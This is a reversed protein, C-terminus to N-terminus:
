LSSFNGVMLREVENNFENSGSYMVFVDANEREDGLDSLWSKGHQAQYENESTLTLKKMDTQKFVQGQGKKSNQFRGKKAKGLSVPRFCTSFHQCPM